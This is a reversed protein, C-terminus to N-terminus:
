SELEASSGQGQVCGTMAKAACHGAFVVGGAVAVIGLIVVVRKM